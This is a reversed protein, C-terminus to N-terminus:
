LGMHMDDGVQYTQYPALALELQLHILCPTHISGKTRMSPRINTFPHSCLLGLKLVLCVEDADYDGELRADVTETLSGKHLNELVWDVLMEYDGQLGDNVPRKGCTIELLFAGFAFVDTLTSAKGTRILEPALYGMTGVVHTTQPDTGHDYLRSLGFDGLRGNMESDLLVNSAKIDRHIVVKEWKDHIYLLGSAVGRIVHFRKPWDLLVPMDEGLHLYKDLSGNPMFEYVLLLEGKRRCYGLLQVLNRNRLRGISVVEAIFEKMGQRSEHSIKKVAVELKSKRLVGKYVKGFGGAGLLQKNKFGKTAHYLDKYSFRHPGFEVEWDELVQAYRLRRLVLLAVVTGVTIIIAATAIPLVIELVKSRPKPGFRPLKPLRAIDIAPAPGGEDMAFSWGLVYHRSNIGGTSSSFGIYAQDTLVTSLDYAASLLPKEPKPAGIPALTVNIQGAGAGEYSVWVQMADRSFLTLNEFGGSDGDGHDPYYGATHSQLSHLSNIDIGVHNADIDQFDTNQTTDLEVALLHNTANGNNQVNLLALYGAPLASSFSEPSPCVVFAMGHASFDTYDSVIAFVFASSFSRVKGGPSRRFQLPTPYFAHGKLNTKLTTLVLLGDRTVSANGDLTLNAGALGPFAFQFGDGACLVASLQFSFSLLFFTMLKMM